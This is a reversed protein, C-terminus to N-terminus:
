ALFRAAKIPPPPKIDLEWWLREFRVAVERYEPLKKIQELWDNLINQTDRILEDRETENQLAECELARTFNFMLLYHLLFSDHMTRTTLGHAHRLNDIGGGLRDLLANMDILIDASQKENAMSQYYPRLRSDEALAFLVNVQNNTLLTTIASTIWYGPEQSRLLEGDAINLLNKIITKRKDEDQIIERTNIYQIIMKHFLQEDSGGDASAM